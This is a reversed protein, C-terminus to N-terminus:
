RSAVDLDLAAVEHPGLRLAHGDGAAIMPEGQDFGETGAVGLRRRRAEHPLGTVVVDQPRDTTNFVFVRLRRDVRLALALCRWADSPRATTVRAEPGSGALEAIDTLLHGVPFRRVGDAVGGPGRLKFLTLRAFGARAAAAVLGLTWGATFNTAQRRDTAPRPRLTVPSLALPTQGAFEHITDAIWGLTTTNEVLTADDFAHVQPTLPLCVLDLGAAADRGRNLETFFVDSGGGLLVPARDAESGGLLIGRAREALGPTTVRTAADFVLWTDIPARLSEAAEALAELEKATKDTSVFAAVELRTAGARAADSAAALDDRWGAEGPRVDVRLHAPAIARLTELARPPLPSAELGLGLRPMPWSTGREVEVRIVEESLWGGTTTAPAAVGTDAGHLTLTAVQRIRDDKRVEVPLPLALPTSYTKFSADSWNRQDETEFLEGEFRVEAEIGPVVEHRLARVDLFPQDPAVLRPFAEDIVSGDSKEKTCARGACATAPHLVCLGIRNRVFTSRAVGDMEFRVTGDTGGDIRGEWEFWLPGERHRADFRLRFSDAEADIRVNELEAPVTDWTPPRVAVYIGRLVEREGLRVWRLEGRDFVLSLPGARLPVPQGPHPSTTKDSALQTGDDSM